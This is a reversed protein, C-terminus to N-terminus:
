GLALATERRASQRFVLGNGYGLQSVRLEKGLTAFVMLVKVLTETGDPPLELSGKLVKVLTEIGGTLIGLSDSYKESKDRLRVEM